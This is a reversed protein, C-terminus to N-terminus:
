DALRYFLAARRGKLSEPFLEQIDEYRAVLNRVSLDDHDTADFEGQEFLAQMCVM